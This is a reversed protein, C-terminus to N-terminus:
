FDDSDEKDGFHYEERTIYEEEDKIILAIAGLAITVSGALYLALIFFDRLSDFTM